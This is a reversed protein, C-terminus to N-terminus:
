DDLDEQRILKILDDLNINGLNKDLLEIIREREIEAGHIAGKQYVKAMKISDPDDESIATPKTLKGHKASHLQINFYDDIVDDNNNM